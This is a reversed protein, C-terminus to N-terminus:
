IKAYAYNCRQGGVTTSIKDREVEVGMRHSGLYLFYEVTRM